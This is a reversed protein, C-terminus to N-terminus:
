ELLDIPICELDDYINPYFVGIWFNHELAKHRALDENWKTIEDALEKKGLDNDNDYLNQSAQYTLSKYREYNAMMQGTKNWNNVMAVIIMVVLVFSSMVATVTPIMTNDSWPSKRQICITIVICIAIILAVAVIIM